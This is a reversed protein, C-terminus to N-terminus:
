YWNARKTDSQARADQRAYQIACTSLVRCCVASPSEPLKTEYRSPPGVHKGALSLAVQSVAVYANAGSSSQRGKDYDRICPVSARIPDYGMDGGGGRGGGGRRSGGNVRRHQRSFVWIPVPGPRIAAHSFMSFEVRQESRVM